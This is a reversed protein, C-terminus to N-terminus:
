VHPEHAPYEDHDAQTCESQSQVLKGIHQEKNESSNQNSHEHPHYRPRQLGFCRHTLPDREYCCYDAHNENKASM